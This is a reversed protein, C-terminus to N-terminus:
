FHHTESELASDLGLLVEIDDRSAAQAQEQIGLRRRVRLRLEALSRPSRPPRRSVRHVEAFLLQAEAFHSECQLAIGLQMAAVLREDDDEASGKAREWRARAVGLHVAGSIRGKCLGCVTWLAPDGAAAASLYRVACEMHVAGMEACGCGTRHLQLAPPAGAAGHCISCETASPPEVVGAPAAQSM